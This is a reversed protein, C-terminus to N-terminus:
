AVSFQYTTFNVKDTATELATVWYTFKLEAIQADQKIKFYTECYNFNKGLSCRRNGVDVADENAFEAELFIPYSLNNETYENPLEYAIKYSNGKILKATDPSIIQDDNTKIFVQSKAFIMGNMFNLQEVIQKDGEVTKIVLKQTCYQLSGLNVTFTNKGGGVTLDAEDTKLTIDHCNGDGIIAKVKVPEGGVALSRIGALSVDVTNGQSNPYLSLHSTQIQYDSFGTDSAESGGGGGCGSLAFSGMVLFKSCIEKTTSTMTKRIQTKGFAALMEGYLIM